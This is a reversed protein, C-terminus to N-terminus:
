TRYLLRLLALWGLWLLCHACLILWFSGGLAALQASLLMLVLAMAQDEWIGHVGWGALWGIDLLWEGIVTVAGGWVGLGPAVLVAAARYFTWHAQLCLADLLLFSIGWPQALQARPRVAPRVGPPYHPVALRAHLLIAAAGAVFVGTSTPLLTLAQAADPAGLAFQAPTVLGGVLAAYPVGIFYASRAMWALANWGAGPRVIGPLSRAGRRALWAGAAALAHLAVSAAAWQALAASM